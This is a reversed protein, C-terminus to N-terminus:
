PMILAFGGIRAKGYNTKVTKIQLHSKKIINIEKVRKLKTSPSQKIYPLAWVLFYSNAKSIKIRGDFLKRSTLKEVIIISNEGSLIQNKKSM